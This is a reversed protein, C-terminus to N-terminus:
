IKRPMSRRPPRHMPMYSKSNPCVKPRSSKDFRKSPKNEYCQKNSKRPIPESTCCIVPEGAKTLGLVDWVGYDVVSVFNSRHCSNTQIKLHSFNHQSSSWYPIILSGSRRFPSALKLIPEHSGTSLKGFLHGFRRKM